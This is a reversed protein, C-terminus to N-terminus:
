IAKDIIGKFYDFPYAGQVLEKGIILSPTANVGAKQAEARDAAAASKYSAGNKKVDAALAQADIGSITANLADISEADGFGKDGEEDQAEYMATRWVFYQEPYLNWVARSYMAADISDNGLFAFDLFVLKAKGTDVYASIIQPLTDLEFKKCFPCQFDSWFAITLPANENGIFPAGATKVNKVNVKPANGTGPTSTDSGNWLVAGAILLAGLIVAVPLFKNNTTEM